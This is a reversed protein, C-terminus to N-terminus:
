QVVEGPFKVFAPHMYIGGGYCEKVEAVCCEGVLVAKGHKDFGLYNTSLHQFQKGCIACQDESALAELQRRQKKNMVTM